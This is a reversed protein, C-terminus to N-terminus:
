TSEVLKWVASNNEDCIDMAVYGRDEVLCQGAAMNYITRGQGDEEKVWWEQEGGMEHCKMMRVTGKGCDLCLLRALVMERRDTLFWSQRKGSGTALCTELRVRGTKVTVEEVPEVCLGSPLHKLQFQRTYNRKRQDWREYKGAKEAGGAGSHGPLALEPYVHDHYWSFNRCGLTERLVKRDTVDGYNISDADPVTQLFYKYYDDLWVKGVRVANRTQTDVGGATQSGYPRRKRFIHGVRSCPIIDLRGGCMWIRFSIELNEGGWIDLGTDYEGLRTFFNRDMAFLGGAMTPSMIPEALSEATDFTGSPPSEWKFHLGWTFGGRVLPSPTYTLTDPNILDIIPTVVHTEDKAIESLLPQLWDTNAEVHSDLFVLVDGTTNRAGFVRARILGLRRPTNVLRVDVGSDSIATSKLETDIEERSVLDSYDNVLLIEHLLHHPSRDLVSHVTRSLTTLDENYFCIIVSASPLVTPFTRTKCLENRTDPLERHLGIRRSVLTNFAFNKYGTERL